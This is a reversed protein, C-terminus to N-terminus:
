SGLIHAAAKLGADFAHEIRGGELGDSAIIVNVGPPNVSDFGSVSDPQSHKWRVVKTFVPSEYGRGLVRAVDM